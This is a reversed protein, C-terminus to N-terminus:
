HIYVKIRSFLIRVINFFTSFYVKFLIIRLDVPFEERLWRKEEKIFGFLIETLSYNKLVFRLRNKHYYTYFDSSLAGTSINERHIIVSDPIYVIKKGHKRARLAFDTDEYYLPNYGEDLLGIESILSKRFGLSAGCVYDAEQEFNFQGKDQEGRGIHVSLGNKRLTGGAHQIIKGDPYLIKSGVLGIDRDEILRRVMSKIWGAMVITDMNLLIVIEGDSNKIGLNASAAFGTNKKTKIIRASPYKATAFEFTNDLSCDDIIIIEFNSYDQKLVSELCEAIVDQANYAPIIVSVLPEKFNM